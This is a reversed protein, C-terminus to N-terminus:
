AIFIVREDAAPFNIGASLEHFGFACLVATDDNEIRFAVCRFLDESMLFLLLPPLSNGAAAKEHRKGTLM